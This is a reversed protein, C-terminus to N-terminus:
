RHNVATAPAVGVLEAPSKALIKGELFHPSNGAPKENASAVKKQRMGKVVRKATWASRAGAPRPVACLGHHFSKLGKASAQRLTHQSFVSEVCM